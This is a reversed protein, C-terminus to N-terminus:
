TLLSAVIATVLQTTPDVQYIYGNNYRYWADPTDYYTTRYALPVNYASYGMPLQQGISLGPALLSAVSTILQSGPDVQYIAGPAYWYNYDPTNYYLSRYQNPVNYYGYGAPLMQGVGYGYAYTPIVDQIFGSYPDVGYVSGNLYRYDMSPTDPYFANWGYYDPVYSNGFYNPFTNGASYYPSYASPFMTGPAYGGFALPLLADILSSGRDVRYMYGDGYRYFYDNTDPYLTRISYPVQSLRTIRDADSLRVGLLKAAQGPPMCGKSALGPPCGGVGYGVANNRFEDARLARGGLRADRVLMGNDRAEIRNARLEDRFAERNRALDVRNTRVDNRFAERGRIQEIRNERIDNRMAERGRVQELRKGRVQQRDEMRLQQREVRNSRVAM